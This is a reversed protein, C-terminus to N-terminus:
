LIRECPRVIVSTPSNGPTGMGGRGCDRCLQASTAEAEQGAQRDARHQPSPFPRRPRAAHTDCAFKGVGFAAQRSHDIVARIGFGGFGSGILGGSNPGVIRSTRRQPALILL